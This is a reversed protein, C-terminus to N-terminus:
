GSGSAGDADSRIEGAHQPVHPVRPVLMVLAVADLFLVAGIAAGAITPAAGILAVAQAAGMAAVGLASRPGDGEPRLSRLTVVTVVLGVIFAPVILIAAFSQARATIFCAAAGLPAHAILAIVLAAKM